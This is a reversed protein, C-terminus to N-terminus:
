GTMRRRWQPGVRAWQADWEAMRRRDLRGRALRGAVLVAGGACLGGLAGILVAQLRAEAAGAPMHVLSGRRDTWVTVSRGKETRPEVRARGTHTSGDATTWRVKAWVTNDSIESTAAPPTRAANETLVASVPHVQARRAALSLEMAGTAARGVLLGGLLAFIWAVLVIWAEVRDSRRLLPNRRWRWLRVTTAKTRRTKAM